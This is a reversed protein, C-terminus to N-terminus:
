QPVACSRLRLFFLRVFEAGRKKLGSSYDNFNIPFSMDANNM